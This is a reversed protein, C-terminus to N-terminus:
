LYGCNQASRGCERWTATEIRWRIRVRLYGESAKHPTDKDRKM